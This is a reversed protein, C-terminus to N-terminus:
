STAPSGRRAKSSQPPHPRLLPRRPRRAATWRRSGYFVMNRRNRPRAAVASTHAGPVTLRGWRSHKFLIKESRKKENEGHIADKFVVRNFVVSMEGFHDM